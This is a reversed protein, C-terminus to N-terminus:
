RVCEQARPYTAVIYNPDVPRVAGFRLEANARWLDDRGFPCALTVQVSMDNGIPQIYRYSRESLRILIGPPTRAHLWYWGFPIQTPLRIEEVFGGEVWLSSVLQAALSGPQGGSWNIFIFGNGTNRLEASVIVDDIWPHTELSPIGLTYITAGPRVGFICPLPCAPDAALLASIGPHM